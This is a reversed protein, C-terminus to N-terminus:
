IEATANGHVETELVTMLASPILDARLQLPMLQALGSALSLPLLASLSGCVSLLLELHFM